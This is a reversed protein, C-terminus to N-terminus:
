KYLVTVATVIGLVILIRAIWLIVLTADAAQSPNAGDRLAADVQKFRRPVWVSSAIIVLFFSIVAGYMWLVHGHSWSTFRLLAYVLLAMIVSGSPAALFKLRDQIALWTKRESSSAKSLQLVALGEIMLTGVFVFGALVATYLYLKM